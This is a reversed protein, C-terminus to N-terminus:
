FDVEKVACTYARVYEMYSTADYVMWACSTTFLFCKSVRLCNKDSLTSSKIWTYYGFPIAWMWGNGKHLKKETKRLIKESEHLLRTSLGCSDIYQNIEDSVWLNARGYVKKKAHLGSNLDDLNRRFLKVWITSGSYEKHILGALLDLEYDGSMYWGNGLAKVKAFEPYCVGMDLDNAACFDEVAQMNEQGYDSYRGILPRNQVLAINKHETVLSVRRCSKILSKFSSTDVNWEGIPMDTDLIEGPLTMVLGSQGDENVKIVVCDLGDEQYYDGPQYQSYGWQCLVALMVMMLLKKM